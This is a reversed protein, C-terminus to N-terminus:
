KIAGGRLGRPWIGARGPALIGNPDVADKIAQHFKLLAHDNFSYAAMVDDMFVPPTRYEGWGNEAAIKILSKVDSRMKANKAADDTIPFVHLVVLNTRLWAWGGVANYHSIGLDQYAKKLVKRSRLVEEGSMGIIPSFFIHGHSRAAGTGTFISLSPIDVAEKAFVDGDMGEQVRDYDQPFHFYNGTKFSAGGIVSLRRKVYEWKADIVNPAGFFYVRAGWYPLNRERALADLEASPEGDSRGVAAQVQPDRSEMLPSTLNWSSNLTFEAVLSAMIDLFAHIDDHRPVFVHDSRSAEPEPLLYFGAKTVIGLNSQAFMPAVHPGYGYQFPQWHQSSAIAGAGTRMLDGNPLVVELGFISGCHDRYPSHGLGHDMANGILSGWGPDACDLWVKLKNDRLHRYFDFYSVGPEVIAFAQPENVELVRNMRKLDVMLTGSLRPASGGYGLNRGTSTPWLPLRHDNAIAVIQQVQKVDIPAVAGCPVYEDAEDGRFPTYADRYTLVDEESTFVWESGVVDQLRRVATQFDAASLCPPLKGQM